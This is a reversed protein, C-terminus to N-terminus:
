CIKEAQKSLRKTNSNHNTLTSIDTKHSFLEMNSYHTPLKPMFCTCTSPTHKTTPMLQSLYDMVEVWNLTMAQSLAILLFCLVPSCLLTVFWHCSSLCLCPWFLCFCMITKTMLVVLFLIFIHRNRQKSSPVFDRLFYLSLLVGYVKFCQLKAATLGCVREYATRFMLASCFSSITIYFHEATM